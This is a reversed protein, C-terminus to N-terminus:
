RSPEMAVDLRYRNDGLDVVGAPFDIEMGVYGDASVIVKSEPLGHPVWLQYAGQEDTRASEGRGFDLM